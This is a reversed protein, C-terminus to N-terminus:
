SAASNATSSALSPAKCFDLVKELLPAYYKRVFLVNNTAIPWDVGEPLRLHMDEQEGGAGIAGETVMGGRIAAVVQSVNDTDPLIDLDSISRVGAYMEARFHSTGYYLSSSDLCRWWTAATCM